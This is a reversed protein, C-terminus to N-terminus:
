YAGRGGSILGRLPGGSSVDQLIVDIVYKKGDFTTNSVKADQQQSGQNIVNVEVNLESQNTGTAEVGLKGSSTRTLPMIAEPGAEGMLGLGNAMPFITPSNVIAGTAFKQIGNQWVGGDAQALLSSFAVGLPGTIGARVSMRIMDSIISNALDSFNMKGTTVFNTLADEMSKFANTVTSELQKGMNIADETYSQLGRKIGETWSQDASYAKIKNQVIAIQNDINELEQIVQQLESVSLIDNFGKDELSVMQKNLVSLENSMGLKSADSSSIDGKAVQLSLESVYLESKRKFDDLDKQREISKKKNTDSIRALEAADLNALQSNKNKELDLLLDAKDKTNINLDRMVQLKQDLYKKQIDLETQKALLQANLYQQDDIIGKAHLLQSSRLVDSNNTKEKEQMQDLVDFRQKKWDLNIEIAVTEDLLSKISRRINDAQPGKAKATDKLLNDM